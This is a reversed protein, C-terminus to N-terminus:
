IEEQEEESYGEFGFDVLHFLKKDFFTEAIGDKKCEQPIDKFPEVYYWSGKDVEMGKIFLIPNEYTGIPEVYSEDKVYERSCEEGKFKAVKFKYGKKDSEIEEETILDAIKLIKKLKEIKAFDVHAM